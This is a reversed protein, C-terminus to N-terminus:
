GEWWAQGRPPAVADLAEFGLGAESMARAIVADILEVHARAAIEPVVGGYPAHRDIQSAVVSSLVDVREGELRVVAAATEDCSTELGLVTVGAVTDDKPSTGPIDM